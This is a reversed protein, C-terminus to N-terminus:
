ATNDAILIAIFHDDIALPHGNAKVVYFM